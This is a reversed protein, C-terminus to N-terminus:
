LLLTAIGFIIFVIERIFVNKYYTIHEEQKPKTYNLYSIIVIPLCSLIGILLIIFGGPWHMINFLCGMLLSTLLFGTLISFGSTKNDIKKDCLFYFGFPFYLFSLTLLSLVCLASGGPIHFLKMILSIVLVVGLAKETRM